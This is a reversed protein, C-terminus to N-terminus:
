KTCRQRSPTACRPSIATVRCSSPVRRALPWTWSTSMARPIASWWQSTARTCGVVDSTPWTGFLQVLRNGTFGNSPTFVAQGEEVAVSGAYRPTVRGVEALALSNEQGRYVKKLDNALVDYRIQEGPAAWAVDDVSFPMESPNRM